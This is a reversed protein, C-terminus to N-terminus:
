GPRGLHATIIVKADAEILARLTPLSALIRGPDRHRGRRRASRQLGLSRTCERGSVGEALLDKLTLVAM